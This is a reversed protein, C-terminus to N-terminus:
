VDLADSPIGLEDAFIFRDEWIAQALFDHGLIIRPHHARLSLRAPPSGINISVGLVPIHAFFALRAPSSRVIKNKTQHLGFWSSEGGGHTDPTVVQTALEQMCIPVTSIAHWGFYEPQGALALMCIPVTSLPNRGLAM